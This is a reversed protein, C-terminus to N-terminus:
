LAQKLNLKNNGSNASNVEMQTKVFGNRHFSFGSTTLRSYINNLNCEEFVHLRSLDVSDNGFGEVM